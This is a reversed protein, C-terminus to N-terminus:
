SIQSTSERAVRAIASALSALGGPALPAPYGYEWYSEVEYGGEAFMHDAPLYLLTSNTYGMPFTVGEPFARLMDLGLEAVAEGEVGVFRLPRGLQLFHMGIVAHDQFRGEGDLVRLMKAAWQRRQVNAKPDNRVAELDSRSPASQMPWRWETKCARLEPEIPILGRRIVDDVEGAVQEGAAVVDDPAGRRWQDNMVATTCPKADGGAGQLFMAGQTNWHENLARCAAGPYDASIEWSNITSPHCSVSFLISMTGGDGNRVVCVPLADCVRGHPSAGWRARGDNGVIRRSVPLATRGMGAHLAADRAALQAESAVEGAKGILSRIYNQDPEIGYWHTLRPGSHTHSTNLLIFEPPLGTRDSVNAKLEAVTEPEFFCVDFALIMAARRGDNLYLARAFLDDLVGQSGGRTDRAGYGEMVTGTPPTICVKAFGARM